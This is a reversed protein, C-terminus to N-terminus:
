FCSILRVRLFRTSIYVEEGRLASLHRTVVLSPWGFYLENKKKLGGFGGGTPSVGEEGRSGYGGGEGGGGGGDGKRHQQSSSSSSPFVLSVPGRWGTVPFGSPLGASIQPTSGEGGGGGGRVAGGLSSSSLFLSPLGQEDLRKAASADFSHRTDSSYCLERYVKRGHEVLNFVLILPPDRQVIIEKLAHINHPSVVSCSSHMLGGMGGHSSSASSSSASSSKTGSLESITAAAGSLLAAPSSLSFSLFFRVMCVWLSLYLCASLCSAFLSSREEEDESLLFSASATVFPHTLVSSPLLSLGLVNDKESLHPVSFSGSPSFCPSVGGGVVTQRSARRSFVSPCWLYLLGLASVTTCHVYPM